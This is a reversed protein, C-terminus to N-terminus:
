PKSGQFANRNVVVAQFRGVGGGQLGRPLLHTVPFCFYETRHRVTSHIMGGAGQKRRAKTLEAMAAASGGKNPHEAM